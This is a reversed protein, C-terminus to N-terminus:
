HFVFAENSAEESVITLKNMKKKSIDLMYLNPTQYEYSFIKEAAHYTNFVKSLETELYSKFGEM